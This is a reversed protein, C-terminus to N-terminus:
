SKKNLIFKLYFSEGLFLLYPIILLAWLYSEAFYAILSHWFIGAIAYWLIVEFYTEKNIKTIFYVIIFSCIFSLLLPISGGVIALGVGCIGQKNAYESLFIFSIIHTVVVILVNIFTIYISKM